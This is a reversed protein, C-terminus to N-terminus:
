HKGFRWVLGTEIRFNNQRNGSTFGTWKTMFYEAQFVQVALHKTVSAQMGGGITWAFANTGTNILENTPDGTAFLAHNGKVGGFLTQIYPTVTDWKRFYYRPGFLYSAYSIDQGSASSITSSNYGGIEGVIGISRNINFTLSGTGGNVQLGESWGGTGKLNTRMYAYSGALEVKPAEKQAHAPFSMAVVLGLAALVTGFRM